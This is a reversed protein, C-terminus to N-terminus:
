KRKLKEVEVDIALEVLSYEKIFCNFLNEIEVMNKITESNKHINEVFDSLARTKMMKLGTKIKHAAFKIAVFDENKIGIKVKGIFELANEKFLGVLEELLDMEGMCDEYVIDLDVISDGEEVQTNTTVINSPSQFNEIEKNALLKHILEDPSYPKLIFDNIGHADCKKQDHISFDATLAIIPVNKIRDDKSSRIQKTIEFGDMVPMRLDMLVVDIKHNKLVNLGYIAKDTLFVECKWNELRHKILRQNLHNDEFVLVRMGELLEEQGKYPTVEEVIATNNNSKQYPLTFRFTSGVGLTSVVDIEGNLKEVIQKVISLGLGTGGYKSYTDTEAQKFSEFINELGDKSIGIGTDTVDFELQVDNSSLGVQIITLKISGREVFKISNGILNLLIQSLKSPDGVLIKPIASDMRVEFDISKDVILTKCLYSVDNVLKHFNFEISTLENLGASLKSYELLENIIQMLTQSASQIADVHDTQKKTLSSEKLLDTFGIIGNLPTRIEHSVKAILNAEDSSESKKTAQSEAKNSKGGFFKNELNNKFSQFTMKLESAEESTLEEFSFNNLQEEIDSLQSFLNRSKTPM